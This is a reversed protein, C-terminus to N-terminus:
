YESLSEVITGGYNTFVESGECCSISSVSGDETFDHIYIIMGEPIQPAHLRGYQYTGYCIETTNFSSSRQKMLRRRAIARENRKMRMTTSSDESTSSDSNESSSIEDNEQKLDQRCITRVHILRSTPPSSLPVDVIKRLETQYQSTRAHIRRPPSTVNNRSETSTRILGIQMDVNLNSTKFEKMLLRDITIM